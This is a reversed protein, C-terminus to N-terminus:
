KTVCHVFIIDTKINKSKETQPIDIMLAKSSFNQLAETGFIETVEKEHLFVETGLRKCIWTSQFGLQEAQKSFVIRDIIWKQKKKISPKKNNKIYYDKLAKYKKKENFLM